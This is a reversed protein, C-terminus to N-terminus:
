WFELMLSALTSRCFVHSDRFRTHSGFIEMEPVATTMSQDFFILFIRNKARASKARVLQSFSFSGGEPAPEIGCIVKTLSEGLM